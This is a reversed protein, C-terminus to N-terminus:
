TRTRKAEVRDPSPLKLDWALGLAALGRIIWYSADLQWRGLGHRASAPFAHHSNHWGEGLGLIGMVINDRSEDHTRFTRRGWLHCVSNISWTAHHVLFVRLLGGWLVGMLASTWTGAVAYAIAGPLLIGLLAIPAFLRDLARIYPDSALDPIYRMEERSQAPLFLWGFHAHYVGHMWGRLGSGHLHPSHPDGPTDTHQHHRRHVSVWRLIPGEVAMLGMLGLVVRVLPGTSFSRHTFLRHYGVTIGVATIAYGGLLLTLYLWTWPAGWLLAVAAIMGLFPLVVAALSGFRGAFYARRSDEECAPAPGAAPSDHM